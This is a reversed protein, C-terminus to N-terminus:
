ISLIYIQCSKFSATPSTVKPSDINQPINVMVPLPETCNQRKKSDEADLAKIGSERRSGEVKDVDYLTRIKAKSPLSCRRYKEIAM